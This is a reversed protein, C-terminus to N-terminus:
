WVRGCDHQEKLKKLPAGTVMFILEDVSDAYRDQVLLQKKLEMHAYQFRAYGDAKRSSDKHKRLHHKGSVYSPRRSGSRKQERQWQRWDPHSGPFGQHQPLSSLPDHFSANKRRITSFFAPKSTYTQDDAILIETHKFGDRFDKRIGSILATRNM